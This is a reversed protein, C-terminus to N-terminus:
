QGATPLISWSKKMALCNRDGEERVYQLGDMIETMFFLGREGERELSNLPHRKISQLKAALDFPQGYDWIRIELHQQFFSVEIDIPTDFPLGRHAYLIANTFGESLALQCQWFCKEPLLPKAVEEFWFLVADLEQLDTKVPLRFQRLLNETRELPSKFLM